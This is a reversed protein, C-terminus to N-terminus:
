KNLTKMLGDLGVMFVTLEGRPTSVLLTRKSAEESDGSAAGQTRYVTNHLRLRM